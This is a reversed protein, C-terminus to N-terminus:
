RTQALALLHFTGNWKFWEEREWDTYEMLDTIGLQFPM